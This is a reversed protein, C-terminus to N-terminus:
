KQHPTFSGASYPLLVLRRGSPLPHAWASEVASLPVPETEVSLVGAAALELVEGWYEPLKQLDELMVSGGGSGYLVVPASRLTAASLRLDPGASEGIQVFRTRQTVPAAADHGTFAQLLLEAPRGWVFDLVLDFPHAAHESRFRELLEDAGANLDVTADAGLGPLEALSAADRGAAVTHGAGSHRALQVALRGAVGTAGLILINDGAKFGHTRLPMLASLAPNPLVAATSDTVGDPLPFTYEKKVVAREAFAGYPPAVNGFAVRTGDPLRGVGSTGPVAPFGPLSSYHTGAALMRDINNVPAATVQVLVEGEAPVPDPFDGFRPTTGVADLVAAKM